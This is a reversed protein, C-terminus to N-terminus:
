VAGSQQPAPQVTSAGPEQPRSRDLSLAGPGTLLLSGLVAALVVDLEYGHGAGPVHNWHVKWLAALMQLAFVAATARTFLGALLLLGGFIEALGALMALAFAPSLGLQAFFQATATLGGGSGAGFLKHVGHAVLVLGAALRLLAPGYLAM